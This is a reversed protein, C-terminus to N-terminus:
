KWQRPKNKSKHNQVSVLFFFLASWNKKKKKGRNQPPPACIPKNGLRYLLRPTSPMYWLETYMNNQRMIVHALLPQPTWAPLNISVRHESVRTVERQKWKVWCEAQCPKWLFQLATSPLYLFLCILGEAALILTKSTFFLEFAMFDGHFTHATKALTWSLFLDLINWCM